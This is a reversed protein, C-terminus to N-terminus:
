VHGLIVQIDFLDCSVKAQAEAAFGSKTARYAMKLTVSVKKYKKGVKLRRHSYLSEYLRL